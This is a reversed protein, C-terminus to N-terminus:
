GNGRGGEGVGGWMKMAEKLWVEATSVFPLILTFRREESIVEVVLSAVV